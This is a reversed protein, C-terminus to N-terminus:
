AQMMLSAIGQEGVGFRRSMRTVPQGASDFQRTKGGIDFAMEGTLLFLKERSEFRGSADAISWGPHHTHFM